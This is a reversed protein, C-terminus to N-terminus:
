ILFRCSPNGARGACKEMAVSRGPEERFELAGPPPAALGSAATELALAFVSVLTPIPRRATRRGSGRGPIGRLLNKKTFSSNVPPSEGIYQYRDNTQVCRKACSKPNTSPVICDRFIMQGDQPADRATGRVAGGLQKTRHLLHLCFNLIGEL